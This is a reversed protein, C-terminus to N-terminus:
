ATMMIASSSSFGQGPIYSGSFNERSSLIESPTRFNSQLDFASSKKFSDDDSTGQSFSKCFNYLEKPM